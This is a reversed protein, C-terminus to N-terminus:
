ILLKSTDEFLELRSRTPFNQYFAIFFKVLESKNSKRNYPVFRVGAFEALLFEGQGAVQSRVHFGVLTLVRIM